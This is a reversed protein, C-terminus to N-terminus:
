GVIRVIWSGEDAPPFDVTVAGDGLLDAVRATFGEITHRVPRPCAALGEYRILVAGAGPETEVRVRGFDYMAPWLSAILRGAARLEEPDGGRVCGPEFDLQQYTGAQRLIEVAAGGLRRLAEERPGGLARALLEAMRGITGVPYWGASQLKEDLLALDEAELQAELDEPSLKGSALSAKVGAITTALLVGKVRGM